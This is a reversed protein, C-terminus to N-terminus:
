APRTLALTEHTVGGGNPVKEGSVTITAFPRDCVGCRGIGVTPREHRRQTPRRRGTTDGTADSRFIGGATINVLRDARQCNTNAINV